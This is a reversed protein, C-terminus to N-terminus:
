NGSPAATPAPQTLAWGQPPQFATAPVDGIHIDELRRSVGNPLDERVVVRLQPDFWWDGKSPPQNPVEINMTWHETKRGNVDEMAKFAMVTTSGDPFNQRLARKRTSDWAIIMPKGQAGSQGQTAIAWREVTIGSIVETGIRQCAPGERQDPCPNTYGDGVPAPVAPGRFESYTKNQPDLLYMVGDGPRLIQIVPQGERTFELRMNQGSKIIRGRTEPQGPAKQIATASYAPPLAAQQAMSPASLAFLAFALASAIRRFRQFPRPRPHTNGMAM